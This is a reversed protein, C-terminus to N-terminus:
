LQESADLARGPGARSEERSNEEGEMLSQAEGAEFEQCHRLRSVADM